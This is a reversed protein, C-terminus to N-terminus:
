EAALIRRAMQLDEETDISLADYRVRTEIVKMKYGHELIILQELSEAQSLPTEELSLFVPLFDHRYGFIGIHEYVVQYETNRPYPIISRSFYLALDNQDRVAKVVNPDDYKEPPIQWCLTASPVDPDNEMARVIEDIMEPSIFPEDGQINIVIDADENRAAEAVRSTGNPHDRSTMVARGGFREVEEAIRNDDTAVIVSDISTAKVAREYVHQIVPKGALDLLPKGPLRTSGYRAPIVGIARM